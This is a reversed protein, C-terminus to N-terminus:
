PAAADLELRLEAVGPYDRDLALARDLQRRAESRRGLHNLAVAHERLAWVNGPTRRVVYALDAEAAAYHGLELSARGRLVRWIVEDGRLSLAATARREVAQPRGLDLLVQLYNRLLLHPYERLINYVAFRAWAFGPLAQPALLADVRAEAVNPPDSRLTAREDAHRVFISAPVDAFVLDWEPDAILIAHLRSWRQGLNGLVVTRFGYRADLARWAAPSRQARLSESLLSVNLIRSDIFLQHEPYLRTELYGGMEMGNFIPGRLDNSLMFDAAGPCTVMPNLSFYQDRSQGVEFLDRARWMSVAIALFGACTAVAVAALVASRFAAMRSSPAQASVRAQAEALNSIAVIATTIALGVLFRVALIPLVATGVFLLLRPWSRPSPAAVFSLAGTLVIVAYLWPLAEFTPSFIGQWEFIPLDNRAGGSFLGVADQWLAEARRGAFPPAALPVFLLAVPLWLPANEAGSASEHSDSQVSRRTWRAQAWGGASYALAPLIGLLYGGHLNAWLWQLLLLLVGSRWNFRGRELIVIYVCWLIWGPLEARLALRTAGAVVIGSVFLANVLGFRDIRGRTFVLALLGWVLITQIVPLAQLGFARNAAALLVTWLWSHTLWPAPEPLSYVFVDHSPVSGRDLIEAGSALYWWVDTNWLFALTFSAVAASFALFVPAARWDLPWCRVRSGNTPSYTTLPEQVTAGNKTAPIELGRAAPGRQDSEGAERTGSDLTTSAAGAEADGVRRVQPRSAGAVRRSAM